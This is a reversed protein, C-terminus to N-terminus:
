GVATRPPRRRADRRRRGAPVLGLTALTKAHTAALPPPSAGAGLLAQALATWSERRWSVHEEEATPGNGPPALNIAEAQDRFARRARRLRSAVTGRPIGLVVSIETMSMEEFASLILVARLSANMQDLIGDVQERMRKREALREPTALTEVREPVQDGSVERRRALTRRMHAAVHLAVQFLFQRETAREVDDLRRAAIMFTRQIEDDLESPPVGARRLTRAVFKVHENLM